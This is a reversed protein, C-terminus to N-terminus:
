IYKYGIDLILCRLSINCSNAGTTNWYVDEGIKFNNM